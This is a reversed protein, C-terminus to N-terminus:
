AWGGEVGGKMFEELGLIVGNIMPSKLAWWGEQHECVESVLAASQPVSIWSERVFKSRISRLM